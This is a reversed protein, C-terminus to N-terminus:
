DRRRNCRVIFITRASYM